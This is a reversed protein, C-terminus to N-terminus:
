ERVIRYLDIKRWGLLRTCYLTNTVEGVASIRKVVDCGRKENLKRGSIHKM